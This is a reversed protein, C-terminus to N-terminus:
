IDNCVKEYAKKMDLKLAFVFRIELRSTNQNGSFIIESDLLEHCAYFNVLIKNCANKQRAHSFVSKEFTRTKQHNQIKM